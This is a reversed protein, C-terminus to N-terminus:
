IPMDMIIDAWLMVATIFMGLAGLTAIEKAIVVPLPEPWGDGCMDDLDDMTIPEAAARDCGEGDCEGCQGIDTELYPDDHCPDHRMERGDVCRTNWFLRSM